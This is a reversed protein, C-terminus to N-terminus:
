FSMPVDRGAVEKKENTSKTAPIHQRQLTRDSNPEDVNQKVCNRPLITCSGQGWAQSAPERGGVTWLDRMFSYRDSHITSTCLHSTVRRNCVGLEPHAAPLLGRRLADADGVLVALLRRQAAVVAFGDHKRQWPYTTVCSVLLTSQYSSTKLAVPLKKRNHFMCNYACISVFNTTFLCLSGSNLYYLLICWSWM